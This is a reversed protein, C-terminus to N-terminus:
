PWGSQFWHAHVVYFGGCFMGVAAPHGHEHLIFPVCSGHASMTWTYSSLSLSPSM